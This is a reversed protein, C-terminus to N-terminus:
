LYLRPCWHSNHLLYETFVLKYEKSNNLLLAWLLVEGHSGGWAAEAGIGVHRQRETPHLCWWRGQPCAASSSPVCITGSNSVEVKSHLSLSVCESSVLSRMKLKSRDRPYAICDLGREHHQPIAAM